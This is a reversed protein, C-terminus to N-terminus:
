ADPRAGEPTEPPEPPVPPDPEQLLAQKLDAVSAFLDDLLRDLDSAVAAIRALRAEDTAM